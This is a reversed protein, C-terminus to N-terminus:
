RKAFLMEKKERNYGPVLYCLLTCHSFDHVDEFQASDFLDIALATM